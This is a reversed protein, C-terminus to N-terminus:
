PLSAADPEGSWYDLGDGAEVIQEVWMRDWDPGALVNLKKSDPYGVVETTHETGVCLYVLPTDASENIMQHAHAPGVPLAIYDGARVPVRDPGIRAVGTGSIVYIAEENAGHWHFPYSRSAPALTVVSAGLQQGGAASGLPTRVFRHTGQAITRSAAESANVVNPHRM